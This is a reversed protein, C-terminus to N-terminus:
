EGQAAVLTTPVILRLSTVFGRMGAHLGSTTGTDTQLCTHGVGVTAMVSSTYALLFQDRKQIMLLKVQVQSFTKM